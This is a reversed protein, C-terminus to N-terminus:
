SVREILGFESLVALAERVRQRQAATVPEGFLSRCLADVLAPPEDPGIAALTLLVRHELSGPQIM